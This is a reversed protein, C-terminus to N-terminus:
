PSAAGRKAHIADLDYVPMAHGIVEIPKEPRLFRYADTPDWYGSEWVPCIILLGSTPPEQLWQLKRVRGALYYDVWVQDWDYRIYVPRDTPNEDLWRGVQKLGQGWDVNSDNCM